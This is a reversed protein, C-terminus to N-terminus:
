AKMVERGLLQRGALQNHMFCLLRLNEESHGGGRSWPIKHDFELHVRAACRVGEPSIYSCQGGDRAMVQHRLLAPIYRNRSVAVDRGTGPDVASVMEGSPEAIDKFLPSAYAALEGREKADTAAELRETGEAGAIDEFIDPRPDQGSVEAGLRKKERRELARQARLVPDHRQLWETLAVDILEEFSVSEGKNHFLARMRLLRERMEESIQLNLVYGPKLGTPEGDRGIASVVRKAEVVSQGLVLPVIVEYNAETLHGALVVIHSLSLAGSRLHQMLDPFFDVQRVVTHRKFAQNATMGFGRELYDYLSYYGESIFHKYRNVYILWEITDVMSTRERQLHEKLGEVLEAKSLDPVPYYM